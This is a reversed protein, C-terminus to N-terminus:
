RRTNKRQLTERAKAATELLTELCIAIGQGRVLQEGTARRNGVDQAALSEELWARVVKFEHNHELSALAALVRESAQKM